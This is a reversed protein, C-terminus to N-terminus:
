VVLGMSETIIFVDKQVRPQPELHVRTRVQLKSFGLCLVCVQTKATLVRNCVGSSLGVELKRIWMTLYWLGTKSCSKGAQKLSGIWIWQNLKLTHLDLAFEPEGLHLLTSLASLWGHSQMHFSMWIGFYWSCGFSCKCRCATIHRKTPCDMLINKDFTWLM